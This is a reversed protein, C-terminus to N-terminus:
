VVKSQGANEEVEEMIEWEKLMIKSYIENAYDKSIDIVKCMPCVYVGMFTPEGEYYLWYPELISKCNKCYFVQQIM